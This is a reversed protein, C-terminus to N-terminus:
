IRVTALDDIIIITNNTALEYALNSGIFGSGGTIAVKKGEM